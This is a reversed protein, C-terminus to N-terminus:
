RGAPDKKVPDEPAAHNKTEAPAVPPPEVKGEGGRAPKPEARFSAQLKRRELQALEFEGTTELANKPCSDVCQGCYICRGLDIDAEFQKDGVKRITVANTPCDRMCLRCGICRALHFRLKGRFGKPMTVKVSPYRVTAPKRVASHLVERLMKGPVKM